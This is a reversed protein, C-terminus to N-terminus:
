KNLSLTGKTSPAPAKMGEEPDKVEVAAFEADRSLRWIDLAGRVEDISTFEGQLAGPLEGGEKFSLKLLGFKTMDVCVTKSEVEKAGAVEISIELTNKRKDAEAREEVSTDFLEDFKIARGM